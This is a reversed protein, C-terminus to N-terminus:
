RDINIESNHRNSSETVTVRRVQQKWKGLRLSSVGEIAQKVHTQKYAEIYVYGKLGDKCIVSKIQLPQFLLCPKFYFVKLNIMLANIFM